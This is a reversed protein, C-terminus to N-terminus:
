SNPLDNYSIFAYKENELPTGDQLYSIKDGSIVYAGLALLIAKQETTNFGTIRLDFGTFEKSVEAKIAYDIPTGDAKLVDGTGLKNKAVAFAGYSIEGKKAEYKSVADKNVTFTIALGNGGNEPSSYGLCAFLAYAKTENNVDECRECKYSYYGDKMFSEYVLDLYVTHSHGLASGEIETKAIDAGCFCYTAEFSNTVCDPKTTESKSPDVIHCYSNEEKTGAIKDQAVSMTYKYGTSCFYFYCDNNLNNYFASFTVSSIDTDKPNAFIFNIHHNRESWAISEMNGLYVVNKINNASATERFMQVVTSNVFVEPMVITTNLGACDRFWTGSSANGGASTLTKPMYYVEPKAPMVFSDGLFNGNEDRVEFPEQVFYMNKDFCFPGQGNGNTNMQVLNKPLYVAQLSTCSTMFRNNIIQINDPLSVAKLGSCGSFHGWNDLNINNPNDNFDVFELGSSDRCISPGLYTITSPLSLYKISDCNYFAEQYISTLGEPLIVAGEQGGNSMTKFASCGSFAFKGITQLPSNAPINVTTLSTCGKFASEGLTTTQGLDVTVLSTCGNFEDSGMKTVAGEIKVTKLSTCNKFVGNKLETVSAPIVISEVGTNSLLNYDVVTACGFDFRKLQTWNNFLNSPISTFKRSFWKIEECKPFVSADATTFRDVYDKENGYHVAGSFDMAVISAKDVTKTFEVDSYFDYTLNVRPNGGETNEVYVTTYDQSGELKVAFEVYLAPAEASISIAFLCAFIAIMLMALLLKKKM